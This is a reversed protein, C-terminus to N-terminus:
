KAILLKRTANFDGATLTYFYLGSAVKEGSQNKGDWYAARGRSQYIGAQQHGFDLVRVVRGHIDHITLTVDTATALHYPIWTEPNFPNPYNPLLATSEPIEAMETLLSLLEQLVAPVSHGLPGADALANAVNHYGMRSESQRTGFRMPAAAVAEIEAAQEAAAVLAAEVEALSLGNIGGNGGAADIAQAVATLDSLDVIGDANVDAPLSMGAPVRTGYFLAVIALDIVTIQGDGDVDLPDEAVGEELVVITFNLAASEGTTDTATYTVNTTGEATPTGTLSLAFSDFYLGDPIPSLTYSYPPTGGIALPLALPTIPTDLTYTQDDITPPNFTIPTTTPTLQWLIVTGDDGGSALTAGDPSFAVSDVWDTHKFTNRLTGSGVDWLSVNRWSGSALTQGNPSFAVSFVSQTHELKNLRTATAVDWLRVTDDGSGTALTQGNPSFAVSSVWDTHETLTDRLTGSGVNWLRVTRDSSGSALTQGDPSFAVSNVWDNHELTNRLTGSGVDWLHIENDESGTALTQGDPSFAVSRVGRPHKFTNRLTGSGVDWLHAEYWSGSALTLGDPSFAVNYVVDGHKLSNLRTTTTVDWLHVVEGWHGTALTRDYPSFAIGKVTSTYGTLSNLRITTRFDWLHVEDESASALTLGDPSFAVSNVGRTNGPLTDRLTTTAVDWLHVKGRGGSALIEGDRSFAVSGVWDDPKLTDQLTGSGVDWLRVTQDWSGSALTQSDPSFAVSNVLNTHETLTHWPGSGAPSLLFWLLVTGDRSGSALMQGDPSFAVSHVRDTHGGTLTNLPRGSEVRWLQVTHDYSGSALTQGDPSFAISSVRDTHGRLTALLTGSGADWLRITGSSGSALMQGDPSFAISSVRATHGVIQAIEQYNVTDYLWISVGAGVALLSGDPSYAIEDITGKGLRAIAGDPLESPPSDQAYSAPINVTLVLFLVSFFCILSGKEITIRM